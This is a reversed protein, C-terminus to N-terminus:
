ACLMICHKVLIIFLSNRLMSLFSHRDIYADTFIFAHHYNYTGNDIDREM